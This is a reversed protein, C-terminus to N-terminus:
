RTLYYRKGDRLETLIMEKELLHGVHKMVENHHMNLGAAIDESTCPRRELMRLVDNETHRFDREGSSQPFSAIIEAPEGWIGALDKLRESPVMAAAEEAPPRVATNFQVRDPSFREAANRLALIEEETDNMGAVVFVELWIEGSFAHRFLEYGELIKKLSLSKCPRNIRHFIEERASVLTPLVVDAEVIDRRVDKEWLLSGNTLVAVRAKDLEKARRIVRGIGSHLTPEGSGSMTIHDPCPPSALSTELDRIVKDTPVYEARSVTQNTTRGVQCYVCDFSCTKHPVLDVGLSLGLRRSPVPGFVHEAM